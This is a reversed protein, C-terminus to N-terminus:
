MRYGGLLEILEDRERDVVRSHSPLTVLERVLQEGGTWSRVPGVLRARVASLGALTSPYSRAVGLRRVRSPACFGNVGYALRVPLRLYGPDASPHVRIPRLPHRRPLRGLLDEANRHRSAAEAEAAARSQLILAAAARPMAAPPHPDRYVTEGLGLAPISMPIGYIAPRGLAWQAAVSGITSAETRLSPQLDLAAPDSVGDRLLLAGGRGGTWGKGRGFSLVSISGLSGLPRGRWRAGHGQAADEVVLAGYRGALAAVEDWEVPIGYLSSVVVVRAGASLVRELSALDPSLTCPDVDYLAIQGGAGVAASAVDYCTFAPLAVPCETRLRSRAIEVARQLAQTGSGYLQVGGASFEARLHEALQQRPDSSSRVLNSAARIGETLSVPSYVALQHRLQM